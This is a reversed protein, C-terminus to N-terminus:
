QTVVIHFVSSGASSRVNLLYTGNAITNTLRVQANLVGNKATASSKYVVKGLLDTLELGVLEDMTGVTGTVAFSGTNPNPYIAIATGNLHQVGTYDIVIDKVLVQLEESKSNTNCIGASSVRCSVKDYNKLNNVSLIANTQGAMLGGNLYWQYSIGPVSNTVTATFTIMDGKTINLGPDATVKIIPDVPTVVTMTVYDFATTPSVCVEDSVMTVGIIDGNAPVYTYLSLSGVVTGNVRWEYKPSPGGNVDKAMFTVSTGACVTLGPLPDITVAPARVAIETVIAKGFMNSTCGTVANTAVVTYSTDTVTTLGFDLSSGTGPMVALPVASRFLEYNVGATSGSLGVHVGSGGGCFTGGGTVAYVAPVPYVTFATTVACGAGTAYTVMTTGTIMGTVFGTIPDITAVGGASISWAGGTTADALTATDGPCVATRGTIPLPSDYVTILATVPCIGSPMTYTVVATGPAMGVLAGTPADILIDPDTTSWVGGSTSDSLTILGDVCVAMPGTIVGPVPHVTLSATTFCGTPLTYTVTGVGAPYATVMGSTSVTVLSSTWIGGVDTTTAFAISGGGCMDGLGMIPAPAPYVTVTALAKCGNTATYTVSAVGGYMGTVLGTGGAVTVGPDASSWAGGTVANSLTIGSGPCVSGAGKIAPLPPDVTIVSTTACVGGIKYTITATGASVGNVYGTSFGVSAVAPNSSSWAGGGTADTLAIINSTCVSAPGTIGSPSPTATITATAVAAGCSGTVKYYVVSTGPNIGTVVGGSVSVNSNSTSWTGGPVANTLTIPTGICVGTPGTISGAFMTATITVNITTVAPTGNCDVVQIKFVDTGTFGPTPTYTLGTPTIASGTSTTTYAASVTGNSPATVVSWTETQGMDLDNIQLQADISNGTSNRCVYLNQTAGATFVVPSNRYDVFRIRHGGWDSIYLNGVNDVAVGRPNSIGANTAPGGDGSYPFTGVGAVTTIIGAADIKRVRNPIRACFYLNGSADGTIGNPIDIQAATAPGGDGSFGMVGNGAITNIIGASNIKRIRASNDAIYINGAADMYLGDIGGIRAAIAPGGDGSYGGGLMGAFTTIIGTIADVKRIRGSQDGIYINGMPDVVVGNPQWLLAATAPGGDGTTGLTGTGAVTTITGSLDIKRVCHNGQDCVYINGSADFAFRTPSNFEAAVAPGGDGSYGSSGAGAITQIIGSPTMMRLRSGIQETFFLNGLGDMEIGAPANITATTAPIGDGNYGSVGTGAITSINGPCTQANVNGSFVLFLLFVITKIRTYHISTVM